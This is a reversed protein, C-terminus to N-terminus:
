ITGNLERFSYQKMINAPGTLSYKRTAVYDSESSFCGVYVQAGGGNCGYDGALPGSFATIQSTGSSFLSNFPSSLVNGRFARRMRKGTSVEIVSWWFRGPSAGLSFTYAKGNVIKNEGSLSSNITQTTGDGSLLLSITQEGTSDVIFQLIASSGSSSFGSGLTIIQMTSNNTITPVLVLSVCCGSLSVKESFILKDKNSQTLQLMQSQGLVAPAPIFTATTVVGDFTPISNKTTIMTNLHNYLGNFISDSTSPQIINNDGLLSEGLNESEIVGYYKLSSYTDLARIHEAPSNLLSTSTAAYNYGHDGNIIIDSSEYVFDCYSLNANASNRNCNLSSLSVTRSNKVHVGDFGNDQAELAVIDVNQCNEILVGPNSTESDWGSWIVKAGIIRFNGAGKLILGSEGSTDIQLNSWTFDTAGINVGVKKTNRVFLGNTSVSFNTAPYDFGVEDFGMIHVMNIYCDRRSDPTSTNFPYDEAVGTNGAEIQVGRTGSSTQDGYLGLSEIYILSCTKKITMLPGTAGAIQEIRSVHLGSGSLSCSKNNLELNSAKWVNTGLEAARGCELMKQLAATDDAGGTAGFMFPNVKDANIRLWVSGGATKIVVGDDDTYGTGALVSRFAGGGLGTGITHQRLTIRQGNTEPEITRLTSIDPCQGIFKLGDNAALQIMVDTASGSEPLVMIPNGSDDMAVIKNKRQEAGPLAPIPEPTRLTRSLNTAAVGDVYNKTAADQPRAPDRLNRIYNDMADYYNAVFSPKRLALSFWSRVQQILMTLKDFADEHVEAFFKGQNRLDTEQTVPLERSISIQYGNPLATALIVNGGVYGGAGTVTYDTDLTLVTINDNLDVVQVVLDPKKFIRFTYPFTTTVGNGKYENHDVETSVTM